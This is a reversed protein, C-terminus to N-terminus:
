ARAALREKAKKAESYIELFEDNNASYQLALELSREANIIDNMAHYCAASYYYPYPDEKESLISMGYAVLASQYDEDFQECLGMGLWYTPSFPDLTTLFLFADSAEKYQCADLLQRAAYYFKAMTEESYGIIEQFTKGEEVYRKMVEPDSLKAFAEEPISFEELNENEM